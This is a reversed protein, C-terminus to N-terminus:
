ILLVIIVCAIALTIYFGLTSWSRIGDWLIKLRQGHSLEIEFPKVEIGKVVNDVFAIQIRKVRRELGLYM